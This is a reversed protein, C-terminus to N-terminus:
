TFRSIHVHISLMSTPNISFTDIELESELLNEVNKRLNEELEGSPTGAFTSVQGVKM